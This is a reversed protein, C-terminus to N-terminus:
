LLRHLAPLSEWEKRSAMVQYGAKRAIDFVDGRYEPNTKDDHKGGVGGGAFYDFGSGVLDLAIQYSQGRNTRHAYFGAPTAHVMTVTTLIGVKMGKQKAVEAGSEVHTGDPLVGLMRNNTKSGCAIATAAAASDTIISNASKTRTNSQYPMLNMALAGKGTKISFEEAVMRQPTSMGDGIFLFVYKPNAGAFVMMACLVFVAVISNRLM